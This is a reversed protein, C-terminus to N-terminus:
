NESRKPLLQKIALFAIFAVFCAAIPLLVIDPALRFSDLTLIFAIIWIFIFGFPILWTHPATKTYNVLKLKAVYKKKFDDSLKDFDSFTNLVTDLYEYPPAVVDNDEIRRLYLHLEDIIRANTYNAITFIFSLIFGTACILISFLFTDVTARKSVIFAALAGILFATSILFFNVRQFLLSIEREQLKIATNYFLERDDKKGSITMKLQSEVVM